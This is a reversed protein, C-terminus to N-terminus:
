ESSSAVPEEPGTLRKEAHEILLELGRKVLVNLDKKGTWEVLKAFIADDIDIEVDM